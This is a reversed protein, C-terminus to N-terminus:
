RHSSSKGLIVGELFDGEVPEENVDKYVFQTVKMPRKKRSLSELNWQDEENTGCGGRQDWFLTDQLGPNLDQSM